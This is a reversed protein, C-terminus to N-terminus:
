VRPRWYELPVYTRMDHIQKLEKVTAIEAKDGFLKLGKKLNYQHIMILGLVEVNTDFEDFVSAARSPTPTQPVVPGVNVSIVGDKLKYRTGRFCLNM